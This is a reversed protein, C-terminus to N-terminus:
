LPLRKQNYKLNQILSPATSVILGYCKCPLMIFLPDSQNGIFCRSKLIFELVKMKM